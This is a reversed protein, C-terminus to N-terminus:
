PAASAVPAPTSVAPPLFFAEREANTLPEVARNQGITILDEVDVVWLRLLGGRIRTLIRDEDENWSASQAVDNNNLLLLERGTGADWMFVRGDSPWTLLRTEDSNWTAGQVNRNHRISLLGANAGRDAAADWMRVLGNSSWSLVRSGDRNWMAGSIGFSSTGHPLALVIGGDSANWIRLTDDGKGTWTMVRTEDPSWLANRVVSDHFLSVLPELQVPDPSAESPIPWLRAGGDQAWSLVQTGAKNWSAGQVNFSLRGRNHPLDFLVVGQAADWVQVADTNTWTLIRGGGADWLAGRVTGAARLEVPPAAPDAASWVRVVGDAGWSLIRSEDANWAAGRAVGSHRFLALQQGSSGDWIRATNDASWSLIRSEGANWVAGNVSGDHQLALLRQGSSSDWVDVQGNDSWSIFRSRDQSWVIGNVSGAETLDLVPRDLGSSRDITTWVHLGNDSTAALIMFRVENWLAREVPASHTLRLVEGGSSADWLIVTGDASWTLIRTEDTNWVAGNVVGEHQLLLREAGSTSDWVRATDDLAWSLISRGDRSWRAGSVAETHRLTTIAAGTQADWVGVTGDLSWTLVSANDPSWAVGQINGVPPLDVLLDGEASWIRAGQDVTNVLLRSEDSDWVAERVPSAHRYTALQEGDINWLYVNGDNLWTLLRNQDASWRTGVVPAGHPLSIVARGEADWLRATGDESWTLILSEDANWAAGRVPGLHRMSFLETEILPDWVRATGDESWTLIQSRTANWAAGSVRGGHQLTLLTDGTMTDAVYAADGAALLALGADESWRLSTIPADYRLALLKQSPSNLANLLANSSESNFVRPYNALSEVALLLATRYREAELQQRSLDALFLSQTNLAQDLNQEARQFALLAVVALTAAIVLGVVLSGIAVRERRTAAQRSTFIYETQLDTAEPEQHANEVLWREANALDVGRLLFSPDRGARDWERARIVLRTHEQRYAWDNDLAYIVKGLATEFSDERNFFIQNVHRISPPLMDDDIARFVIPILKKNNEHAYQLEGLCYESVLYDPSLVSIFANSSEIGRLLDQTFDAAGPPIDEWDIWVDKDYAKLGQDLQQVFAKDTRRYSIFVDPM